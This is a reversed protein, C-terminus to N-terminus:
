DVTFIERHAHITFLGSEVGADLWGHGYSFCSLGDEARGGTVERTGRQLYIGAIFLVQRAFDHAPTGPAPAPSVSDIATTLLRAYRRTKEDLKQIHPAAIRESPGAFPCTRGPRPSVLLGSATGCHIWGLGYLFAALANVPDNQSLFTGGDNEYASAMRLISQGIRRQPSGEVACCTTQALATALLDRHELIMM